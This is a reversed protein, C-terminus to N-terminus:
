IISQNILQNPKTLERSRRRGVSEVKASMPWCMRVASPLGNIPRISRHLSASRGVVSGDVVVLLDPGPNETEDLLRARQALGPGLQGDAGRGGLGGAEEHQVVQQAGRHELVEIEDEGAVVHLAALGVRLDVAERALPSHVGCHTHTDPPISQPTYQQSISQSISQSFAHCTDVSRDILWVDLSPTGAEREMTTSSLRMPSCAASPASMGQTMVCVGEVLDCSKLPALAM